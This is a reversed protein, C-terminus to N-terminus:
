SNICQFVRNHGVQLVEEFRARDIEQAVLSPGPHGGTAFPPPRYNTTLGSDDLVVIGGLRVSESCVRWDALAIEYDHNGDIYIVDWARARIFAVAGADTSFGRFLRPHPLGFHDFNAITDAYYDLGVAYKSVSDGAPSFPSIGGVECPQDQLRGLLAALSITQGRFVGIELYSAPKLERFLASWMVHFADEGFGRPNRRPQRFYERHARLETAFKQHFHRYCELYFETPRALSATWASRELSLTAPVSLVRRSVWAARVQRVKGAAFGIVSM